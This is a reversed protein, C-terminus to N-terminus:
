GVAEALGDAKAPHPPFLLGLAVALAGLASVAKSPVSALVKKAYALLADKVRPDKERQARAVLLIEGADIKDGHKNLAEAIAMALPDSVIGAKAKGIMPQSYGGLRDGLEADTLSEGGLVRRVREIYDGTTYTV